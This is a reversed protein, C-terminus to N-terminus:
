SLTLLSNSAHNCPNSFLTPTNFSNKPRFSAFHYPLSSNFPSLPMSSPTHHPNCSTFPTKNQTSASNFSSLTKCTAFSSTIM